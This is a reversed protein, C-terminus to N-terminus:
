EKAGKTFPILTLGVFALFISYWFYRYDTSHSSTIIKPISGDKTDYLKFKVNDCSENCSIQVKVVDNPQFSFDGLPIRIINSKENTYIHEFLTEDAKSATITYSYNNISDDGFYFEIYDVATSKIPVEQSFPFSVQKIESDVNYNSLEQVSTKQPHLVLIFIFSIVGLVILGYAIIKKYHKKILGM